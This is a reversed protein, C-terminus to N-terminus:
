RTMDIFFTRSSVVNGAFDEVFRPGAANFIYKYINSPRCSLDRLTRLVYVYLICVYVNIFTYTFSCLFHLIFFSAPIYLFFLSSLLPDYLSSALSCYFFFFFIFLFFFLLLPTNYMPTINPLIYTTCLLSSFQSVPAAVRLRTM